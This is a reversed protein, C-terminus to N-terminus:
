VAKVLTMFSFHATAEFIELFEGVYNVCIAAPSFNIYFQLFFSVHLSMRRRGLSAMPHFHGWFPPGVTAKEMVVISWFM